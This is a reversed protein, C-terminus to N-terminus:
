LRKVMILERGEGGTQRFGQRRYFARAPVNDEIVSLRLASSGTGVAWSRIEEVLRGAVGQGRVAPRVWLSILETTDVTRAPIGSVMGAPRDDVSAVVNHSGAIGLRSRWREERDGEGQWDALTATFAHPADALAALRLERWLRWDDPELARIEIVM